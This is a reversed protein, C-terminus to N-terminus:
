RGLVETEPLVRGAGLLGQTPHACDAVLVALALEPNTTVIGDAETGAFPSGLDPASGILLRAPVLVTTFMYLWVPEVAQIVTINGLPIAETHRGDRIKLLNADQIGIKKRAM